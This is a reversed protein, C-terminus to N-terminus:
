SHYHREYVERFRNARCVIVKKFLEGCEEVSEEDPYDDRLVFLYPDILKYEGCGSIWLSRSEVIRSIYNRLQSKTIHGPYEIITDCISVGKDLRICTVNAHKHADLSSRKRWVIGRYPVDKDAIFDKSYHCFVNTYLDRDVLYDVIERFKESM